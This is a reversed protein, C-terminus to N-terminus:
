CSRSSAAASATVPANWNVLESFIIKIQNMGPFQNMRNSKITLGVNEYVSLQAAAFIIFSCSFCNHQFLSFHSHHYVNHLQPWSDHPPYSHIISIVIISFTQCVKCESELLNNHFWVTRNKSSVSNIELRWSCSQNILQNTFYISEFQSNSHMLPSSFGSFLM